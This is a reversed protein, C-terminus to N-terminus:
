DATTQAQHFDKKLGGSPPVNIKDTNVPQTVVPTLDLGGGGPTQYSYSFPAQSEHVKVYYGVTPEIGTLGGSFVPTGTTNCWFFSGLMIDIVQDSFAPSAVGAFGAEVLGLDERAMTGPERWGFAYYGINFDVTPMPTMDVEGATVATVPDNKVWAYYADGVVIDTTLVWQNSANKFAYAGTNINIIQDAFAPSAFGTFQDPGIIDNLDYTVVHDTTYYTFPFSFAVYGFPCDWTHFGVTNSPGSEAAMLPLAAVCLVLTFLILKKSM